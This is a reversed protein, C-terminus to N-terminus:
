RTLNKIRQEEQPNLLGKGPTKILHDPELSQKVDEDTIGIERTMWIPPAADKLYHDFFQFMRKNCDELEMNDTYLFHGENEYDLMWVQKGLRRLANFFELGQSFPVQGDKENHIMLLPTSINPSALLPSNNIYTDLSTWPDTGLRVQGIEPYVARQVGHHSVLDYDSILNSMGAASCAAAFKDSHTVIYNTEFGGFSHGQIGMKNKNIFPMKSFYDAAANVYYLASEG